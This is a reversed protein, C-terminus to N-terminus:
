LIMLLLYPLLWIFLRMGKQLDNIADPLIKSVQEYFQFINGEVAM